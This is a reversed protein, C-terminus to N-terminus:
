GTTRVGHQALDGFVSGKPYNSDPVQLSSAMGTM